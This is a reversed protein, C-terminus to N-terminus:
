ILRTWGSFACRRVETWKALCSRQRVLSLWWISPGFALWLIQKQVILVTWKSPCWKICVVVCDICNQCIPWKLLPQLSWISPGSWHKSCGVHGICTIDLNFIYPDNRSISHMEHPPKILAHAHSTHLSHLEVWVVVHKRMVMMKETEVLIQHRHSM